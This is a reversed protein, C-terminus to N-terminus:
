APKGSKTWLWIAGVSLAGGVIPSLAWAVKALYNGHTDRLFLVGWAIVPLCCALGAGLMVLALWRQTGM